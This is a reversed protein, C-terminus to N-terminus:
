TKGPAKPSIHSAELFVHLRKWLMEAELSLRKELGAFGELLATAELLPPTNGEDLAQELTQLATNLETVLQGLYAGQQRLTALYLKRDM